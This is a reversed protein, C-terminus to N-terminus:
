DRAMEELKRLDEDETPKSDYEMIHKKPDFKTIKGTDRM